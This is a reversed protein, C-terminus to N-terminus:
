ADTRTMNGKGGMRQTEQRGSWLIVLKDEKEIQEQRKSELKRQQPHNSQVSPDRTSDERFLIAQLPDSRQQQLLHQATHDLDVV